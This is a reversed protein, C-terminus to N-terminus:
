GGEGLAPSDRHATDDHGQDGGQQAAQKPIGLLGGSAAPQGGFAVGPLGVPLACEDVAGTQRDDGGVRAAGHDAEIGGGLAEEAITGLLHQALGRGRPQVIGLLENLPRHFQRLLRALREGGAELDQHRLGPVSEVLFPDPSPYALVAVAQPYAQRNRRHSVVGPDDGAVDHDRGGIRCQLVCRTQPTLLFQQLGGYVGHWAEVELEIGFSSHQGPIAGIGRCQSQTLILDALHMGQVHHM